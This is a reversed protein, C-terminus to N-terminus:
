LCIHGYQLLVTPIFIHALIAAYAKVLPVNVNFQLSTSVPLTPDTPSRGNADEAEYKYYDLPACFYGPQVESCQRGILHRRCDCQGNEM